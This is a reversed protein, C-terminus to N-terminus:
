EEGEKKIPLTIIFQTFEANSEARITGKHLEIIEKSVALGLGAGGTETSRAEDLRYFKEFIKNIKYDPIEKGQNKIRIEVMNGAKKATVYITTNPYCYSVANRLLNEFVRALRDTDGSIFVEDDVDVKYDLGKTQFVPTFSDIVQELLVYLYFDKEDLKIDQLNYRTIEFFENILKGLRKAKEVSIGIYKARQEEPMDPAEDLLSLYAIVSTLPTKLDHALYVILDNKRQESEATQRRQEMLTGKIENMKDELPNLEPSLKITDMSEDLVLQVGSEIQRLYTTFRSMGLYFSFLLMVFSGSMVIITKNYTFIKRYILIADDNNFGFHEFFDVMGRAFTDHLMSDLFIFVFAYTFAGILLGIGLTQIMIKIKLKRYKSRM